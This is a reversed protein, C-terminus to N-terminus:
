SGLLVVTNEWGQVQGSREEGMVDSEKREGRALLEIAQLM